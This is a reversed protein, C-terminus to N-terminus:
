VLIVLQPQETLLLSMISSSIYVWCSILQVIMCISELSTLLVFLFLQLQSAFVHKGWKLLKDLRIPLVSTDDREPTVSYFHHFVERVEGKRAFHQPKALFPDEQSFYSACSLWKCPTSLSNLPWLNNPRTRPPTLARDRQPGDRHNTKRSPTPALNFADWPAETVSTCRSQPWRRVAPDRFAQAVCVLIHGAARAAIKAPPSATPQFSLVSPSRTQLLDHCLMYGGQVLSCYCFHSEMMEVGPSVEFQNLWFTTRKVERTWKLSFLAQLSQWAGNWFSDKVSRNLRFTYSWKCQIRIQTRALPETQAALM